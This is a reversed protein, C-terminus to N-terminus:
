LSPELCVIHSGFLWLVDQVKGVGLLVALILRYAECGAGFARIPIYKAFFAIAISKHVWWM